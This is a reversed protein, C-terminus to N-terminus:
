SRVGAGVRRAMGTLRYAAPVFQYAGLDWPGAAPRAVGAYDSTFTGSLNLGAGRAFSGSQLHFENAVANVFLPDYQDGFLNDVYVNEAAAGDQLNRSAANRASLNNKFTMVNTSTPDIFIGTHENAFILNNQFISATAANAISIGYVANKYITNNSTTVGGGYGLSIGVHNGYILNNYAVHGIDSGFLIGNRTGSNRIICNRITTRGNPEGWIHIAYNSNNYFECGDVLNDTSVIYLGHEFQQDVGNDYVKTNILEHWPGVWSVGSSDANKVEGNQFRIHHTAPTHSKYNKNSIGQGDLILGNVIIYSYAGNFNICTGGVGPPLLTVVESEYASVTVPNSWSTGSPCGNWETSTMTYSGGVIYLTDGASLCALGAAITAKRTGISQAQVCTNSNSGGTGTYYIM